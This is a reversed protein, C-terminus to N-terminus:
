EGGSGGGAPTDPAVRLHTAPDGLLNYIDLLSIDGGQTRLEAYSRLIVDGLRLAGPVAVRRYFIEALARSDKSDALGSPGFVAVAGGGPSEVLVEGLAPVGPVAFRNVTCTMATVVPLRDGNTLGAVDASTLLGGASLRDLGGHGFYNVLGTGAALGAFLRSRAATLPETGLDIREAQFSSPIQAAVRESDAAFVTGQDPSDSLLLVHRAWDVPAGTEYATLKDVYGQLESATLVPIRGVAMEPLGDGNVDGLRNDSPFLGGASQVMLPPMVNDGYGLLNRYDLTGQGALAVYRPPRPWRWADALFARISQPTPVGFGYSDAIEELTVVAAALGQSQRLDALRQATSRWASPVIVLYDARGIKAVAQWPRIEVPAKVAAPGAALYRGGPTAAFSVQWGSPSGAAVAAGQLWRPFRPDSVELLRVNPDTLGAVTLGTAGDPAFTLSDGAAQFTRRYGLDFGELYTISYPAGGGAHAILQVQNGSALLTGPPVALTARYAAIGQWQAEGLPTGNLSVDVRHEGPTGTTTAGQLDVALEAAGPSFGPADLSFTRVGFTPDDGLLFEWFWYDSEPALSIATAPIADHETRRVEPFTDAPGGPTGAVTEADMLTGTGAFDVQYVALDTYLSDPAESYFFLGAATGDNRLDPHWAVPLGDRNLTTRGERISKEIQDVPKGIAAALSATSLYILGTDRVSVRLARSPNVLGRTAQKAPADAPPRSIGPHPFREFVGEIEPAEDKATWPSVRFPGYHRLRGSAEVEELVYAQPERPWAGEDLFRYTGGQPSGALAPLLGQHAPTLRGTRPDRRLVRFGATREESATTWETLVGGHRGPLARFSSVVAETLLVGQTVALECLPGFLFRARTQTTNGTNDVYQARTGNGSAPTATVAIRQNASTPTVDVQYTLIATAGAALTGPNWTIDGTGGVSPQSVISGQGVAANGAYVAGSGPVNATVLNTASFTIAQAGPNVLRVTVQMRATQGVPIPNPGSKQTLVQEVYPKVPATGADNPLYVRFSDNTPNAAPPNAAAQYNTFSLHGYNGNPTGGVLYSSITLDAQWIGYDDAATDSTWGSFPDRQWANNGSMSSSAYSQTFSGTRSTLALSGTTGSNSDFDFDNKGATCGSTIYPYVTYSSTNTGSAPPNAGYSTHSDYYVNLETGGVGSTGDHARIGIANIDDGGSSAASSMDVRLEWHGAATNQATASNLLTTWANDTCTNDDCNNLTAATTGDPRILTYDVQTNYGGRDRDRGNAADNAGGRGIDADWIEVTLRTLGSPVEIFYHYTTNLGGTAATIYDGNATGAGSGQPRHLATTGTSAASLPSIRAVLVLLAAISFLRLKDAM